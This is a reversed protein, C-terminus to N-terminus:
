RLVLILDDVALGIAAAGVENPHLPGGLSADIGQTYGSQDLLISYADIHASDTQTAYSALWNNFDETLQQRAPSWLADDEWPTINVLMVQLSRSITEATMTEIAQTMLLLQGKLTPTIEDWQRVDNIGGQIIVSDALPSLNLNDTFTEAIEETLKTAALAQNDVFDPIMLYNPYATQAGSAAGISDGVVVVHSFATPDAATPDVAPPNSDSSFCGSLSAAALLLLQKGM